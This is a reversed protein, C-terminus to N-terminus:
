KSWREFYPYGGIWVIRGGNENIPQINGHRELWAGIMTGVCVAVIVLAGIQDWSLNM